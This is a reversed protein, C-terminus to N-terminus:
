IIGAVVLRSNGLTTLISLSPLETKVGAITPKVAEVHSGTVIIFEPAVYVAEVAAPVM